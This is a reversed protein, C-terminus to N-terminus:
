EHGQEGADPEELRQLRQKLAENERRLYNVERILAQVERTLAGQYLYQVAINLSRVVAANFETQRWIMPDLYSRVEGHLRRRVMAWLQGFLPIRSRVSLPEYVKNWRENLEHMSHELDPPIVQFVGYSSLEPAGTVDGEKQRQAIKERIEAMIGEVDLSDHPEDKTM